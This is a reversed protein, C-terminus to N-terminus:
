RGGEGESLEELATALNWKAQKEFREQFWGTRYLPERALFRRLVESRGARYVPEAVWGYEERIKREYDRFGEPERGLVALDIDVMLGEDAGEAMSRAEDHRTAMIMGIVRDVVEVAAGSSLLADSAWAASCAENDKRHPDYVADHFWLAVEVEDPREALHRSADLLRLVEALHGGDHYRRHPEMWAAALAESLGEPCGQGTLRRWTSELRTLDLRGSMEGAGDGTTAAEDVDPDDAM